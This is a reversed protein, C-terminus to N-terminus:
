VIAEELQHPYILIDYTLNFDKLQRIGRLFSDQLMFGKKEAQLIHRVGKFLPNKSFFELRESLDDTCLDVWGVVGKVFPNQEALKLLFQTEAESQDAQVAVCGEMQSKELLPKLDKPLFDTAIKQMSSDIWADRVPDFQWFHQHSDIRM